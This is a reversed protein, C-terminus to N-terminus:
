LSDLRLEIRSTLNAIACNGHRVPGPNALRTEGIRDIGRAEHIHGCFVIHPKKEEIFRRLSVSGAHVKSSALDLQTNIPPSHSVLIFWKNQHCEKEGQRLAKMIGEEGLEFLSYFSSALAGGLGLFSVDRYNQCKGHICSAGKIQVEALQPPDCNGPVYLLPLELAILPALIKQTDKLSGFHTIDGCIIIVDARVNKAKLATQRSAEVSGHFDSAVLLKM